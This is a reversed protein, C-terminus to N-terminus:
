FGAYLYQHAIRSFFQPHLLCLWKLLVIGILQNCKCCVWGSVHEIKDNFKTSIIPSLLFLMINFIFSSRHNAYLFSQIDQM